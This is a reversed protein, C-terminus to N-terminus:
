EICYSLLRADDVRLVKLVHIYYPATFHAVLVLFGKSPRYFMCDVGKFLCPSLLFHMDLNRYGRMGKHELNRRTEDYKM